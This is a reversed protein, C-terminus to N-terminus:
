RAHWEGSDFQRKLVTEAWMTSSAASDIHMAVGVM